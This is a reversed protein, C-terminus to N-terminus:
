QEGRTSVGRFSPVSNQGEGRQHRIVLSRIEFKEDFGLYPYHRGFATCQLPKTFTDAVNDLTGIYEVQVDGRQAHDQAHKYKVNVHRSNSPNSGTGNVNLVVGRNDEFIKPAGITEIGMERYLDRLWLTEEVTRSLAVYEAAYTSTTVLTQKKSKWSIPTGNMYIIYGTRSKGDDENAFSADSFAYLKVKGEPHDSRNIRLSFDMTDRLYLLLRKLQNLDDGTVSKIFSAFRSVCLGLDPRTIGALWNFSGLLEQYLRIEKDGLTPSDEERDYDNMPARQREPTVFDRYKNLLENIYGRQHLEYGGDVSDFEMGCFEKVDGLDKIKIKAIDLMYVKFEEYDRDDEICVLLDDVYLAVLIKSNSSTTKVFIGHDSLTRKFGWAELHSKFTLYWSRGSNRLGYLAKKCKWVKNSDVGEVGRPPLVFVPDDIPLHLYASSVDMQKIKMNKIVAATILARLSDPLIVPSYTSEPGIEQLHGGAVYRAKLPGNAKKESLDISYVFQGPLPRTGKPMDRRDIEDYVNMLQLKEIEAQEARPMLPGYHADAKLAKRATDQAKHVQHVMTTTRDGKSDNSCQSLAHVNLQYEGRSEHAFAFVSGLRQISRVYARPGLHKGWLANLSTRQRKRSPRPANVDIFTPVDTIGRQGKHPVARIDPVHTTVVTEEEAPYDQTPSDDRPEAAPTASPTVMDEPGADAEAVDTITSPEVDAVTSDPLSSEPPPPSLSDSDGDPPRQPVHTLLYQPESHYPVDAATTDSTVPTISYLGQHTDSPSLAILLKDPLRPLKLAESLLHDEVAPQRLQDTVRQDESYQQQIYQMHELQTLRTDTSAQIRSIAENAYAALDRQMQETLEAHKATLATDAHALRLDLTSRLENDRQSFHNDARALDHRLKDHLEQDRKTMRGDAESLLDRTRQLERAVNEQSQKADALLSTSKESQQRAAARTADEAQQQQRKREDERSALRNWVDLLMTTITDKFNLLDDQTDFGEQIDAEIGALRDIVDASTTATRVASISQLAKKLAAIEAQHREVSADLSQMCALREAAAERTEQHSTKIAELKSKLSQRETDDLDTRNQLMAIDDQLRRMNETQARANDEIQATFEVRADDGMFYQPIPKKPRIHRSYKRSAPATARAASLVVDPYRDPIPADQAPQEAVEEQVKVMQAEAVKMNDFSTLFYVNSAYLIKMRDQPNMYNVWIAHVVSNGVHTGVFIGLRCTDQHKWERIAKENPLKIRVDTGFIPSVRVNSPMGTLLTKPTQGQENPTRNHILVAHTLASLQLVQQLVDNSTADTLLSKAILLIVGNTREARGNLKPTYLPIPESSANIEDKLFQLTPLETGNDKTVFAIQNPLYLKNIHRVQMKSDQLAQSKTSAPVAWVHSSYEDTIYTIHLDSRYEASDM